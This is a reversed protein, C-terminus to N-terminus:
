GFRQPIIGGDVGEPLHLWRADYLSAEADFVRGDELQYQNPTGPKLGSTFDKRRERDTKLRQRAEAWDFDRYLEERMVRCRDSYEAKAALNDKEEPDNELDFLLRKGGEMEIYKWRSDRVLRWALNSAEFRALDEQSYTIFDGYTFCSSSVFKRPGAVKGPSGLFGSFDVGDLEDPVPLGCLSCTTPFLDILSVPVDTKHYGPSIGPGSILLPVRVSEEYYVSKAWMGHRGLMEGHDSTYIIITNELAGARQLGDILEGICDDVFDVCAYYGEIARLIDEEDPNSALMRDYLRRAFPELTEPVGDEIEPMPVKGRYRRIYRGPATLPSHPRGYSACVFWPTDGDRDEQELIWALSERTVVVDQVLSEPIESVGASMIHAYGPYKSLPDPQHGLGHRLDGYPRDQFGQMQDRGGFHMKGILATRYGHEAFHQPWTCHEPFIIWHNAWAACNHQEKGTLLCMRSPTCIPAACVASDFQVSRQALADLNQTNVVKDGSFGAIGAMHEDTLIFLINPKKPMVM